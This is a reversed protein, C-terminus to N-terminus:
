WGRDNTWMDIASDCILNASVPFKRMKLETLCVEASVAWPLSPLCALVSQSFPQHPVDHELLLVKNETDKDGIKGLARVFHGQLCCCSYLLM